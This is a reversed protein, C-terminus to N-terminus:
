SSTSSVTTQALILGNAASSKRELATKVDATYRLQLLVVNNFRFKTTSSVATQALILGSAASGKRELAAEIEPLCEEVFAQTVVRVCVCVHARLPALLLRCAACEHTRSARARVCACTCIPACLPAPCTNVRMCVYDNLLQVAFV